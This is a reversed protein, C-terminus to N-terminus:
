NSRIGAYSEDHKSLYFVFSQATEAEERSLVVPRESAHFFLATGHLANNRNPKLVVGIPGNLNNEYYCNLVALLCMDQRRKVALQIRLGKNTMMYPEGPDPYHVILAANRFELPSRALIGRYLDPDFEADDDPLREWAFLSQDVSDKMIEEQLRVFANSGEGYILPMHVGFVGLLCYAIDEERTTIRRSAWSM